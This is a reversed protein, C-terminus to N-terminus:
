RSSEAALEVKRVFGEGLMAHLREGDNYFYEQLLPVVSHFWEFHPDGEDKVSM